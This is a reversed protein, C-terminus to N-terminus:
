RLLIIERPKGPMVADMVGCVVVWAQLFIQTVFGLDGLFCYNELPCKLQVQAQSTGMLLLTNGSTKHINLM